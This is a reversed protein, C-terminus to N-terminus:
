HWFMSVVLLLASGASFASAVYGAAPNGAKFASIAEILGIGCLGLAAFRVVIQPSVDFWYLAM